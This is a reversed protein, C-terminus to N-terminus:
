LVEGLIPHVTRKEPNRAHTDKGVKGCAICTDYFRRAYKNTGPVRTRDEEEHSRYRCKHVGTRRDKKRVRRFGKGPSGRRDAM